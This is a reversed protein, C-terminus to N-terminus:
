VASVASIGGPTQQAVHAKSVIRNHDLKVNAIRGRATGCLLAISGDGMVFHRCTTMDLSKGSEDCLARSNRAFGTLNQKLFALSGGEGGCAVEYNDMVELFRVSM